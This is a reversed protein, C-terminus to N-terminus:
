DIEESASYGLGGGGGDPAVGQQHRLEAEAQALEAAIERVLPASAGHAVSLVAHASRWSVVADRLRGLHALLKAHRLREIGVSPAGAPSLRECLECCHAAADLAAGWDQADIGRLVDDRCRALQSAQRERRTRLPEQRGRAQEEKGEKGGKGGKGEEGEEGEEGMGEGLEEREEHQCRACACRFGYGAALEARRRTLPLALDLYGITVSEGARLPRLARLELQPMGSGGGGDAARFSQCASPACDHNTLAALPFLGVAV